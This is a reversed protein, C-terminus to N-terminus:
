RVSVSGGDMETAMHSDTANITNTQSVVLDQSPKAMKSFWDIVNPM